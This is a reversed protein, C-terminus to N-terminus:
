CQADRDRRQPFFCGLFECTSCDLMLRLSSMTVQRTEMHALRATDQSALARALGLVLLQFVSSSGDDGITRAYADANLTERM